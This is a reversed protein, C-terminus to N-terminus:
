GGPENPAAANTKRRRQRKPKGEPQTAEAPASTEASPPGEPGGDWQVFMPMVVVHPQSRYTFLGPSSPTTTELMINGDKARLYDHLLGWSFAIHSGGGQTSAALTVEADGLEEGRASVTLTKSEWALRVINSGGSAVHSVQNLARLFQEADVVVKHDGGGPILSKYDPFEGQVLQSTLSVNGWRFCMRSKAYGVMMPRKAVALSALQMSPDTTLDDMSVTIDPQKAARKWLTQLVKVASAPLGLHSYEATPPLRLGTAEWALRFGDAAAVEVDDGLQIHISTLVPRTDDTSCYPWMRGLAALLADGDVATDPGELSPVPPFEDADGGHLTM